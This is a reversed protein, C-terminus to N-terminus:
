VVASDKQKEKIAQQIDPDNRVEHRIWDKFEPDQLLERFAQKIIEPSYDTM